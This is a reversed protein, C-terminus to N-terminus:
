GFEKKVFNVNKIETKPSVEFLAFCKVKNIFKLVILIYSVDEGM